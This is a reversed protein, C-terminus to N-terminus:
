RSAKFFVDKVKHYFRRLNIIVPWAMQLVEFEGFYFLNYLFPRFPLDYYGVLSVVEPLFKKKFYEQTPTTGVGRFSFWSCEKEKAWRIGEWVYAYYTQWKQYKYPTGMHMALCKGGFMICILGGIIESNYKALFLRGNGHVIFIDWLMKQYKYGRSMFGKGVSFENFLGYFRKLEDEETAPEITVGDREAKRICRRTDRDLLNLFDEPANVKTLDIRSVDRPSNWRTWRQKLHIFGMLTLTDGNNAIFDESINPDIRLFIAQKKLSLEKAKEILKELTKKDDYNWIPGKPSYLISFPTYPLKKELIMMAGCFNGDREAVLYTPIWNDISRVLGWGYANLPHVFQFRQIERDWYDKEKETIERVTIM